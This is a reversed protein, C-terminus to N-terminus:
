GQGREVFRGHALVQDGEVARVASHLEANRHGHSADLAGTRSAAIGDLGREKLSDMWITWGPVLDWGGGRILKRGHLRLSEGRGLRGGALEGNWGGGVAFYGCGERFRLEGFWGRRHIEGGENGPM